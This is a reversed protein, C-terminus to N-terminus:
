YRFQNQLFFPILDAIGAVTFILDPHVFGTDMGGQLSTFANLAMVRMGGLETTQQICFPIFSTKLTVLFLIIFLLDSMLHPLLATRGAVEGM